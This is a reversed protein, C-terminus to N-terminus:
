GLDADVVQELLWPERDRLRVLVAGGSTQHLDEWAYIDRLTERHHDREISLRSNRARLEAVRGQPERPSTASHALKCRECNRGVDDRRISVPNDFLHACQRCRREQDIARLREVEAEAAALKAVLTGPCPRHERAVCAECTCAGCMHCSTM